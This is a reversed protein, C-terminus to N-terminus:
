RADKYENEADKEDKEVKSQKQLRRTKEQVM